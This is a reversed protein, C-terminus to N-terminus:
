LREGGGRIGNDGEWITDLLREEENHIFCHSSRGAPLKNFPFPISSTTERERQEQAMGVRTRGFLHFFEKLNQNGERGAAGSWGVQMGPVLCLPLLLSSLRVSMPCLGVVLFESM